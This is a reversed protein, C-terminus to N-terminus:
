IIKYYTGNKSRFFLPNTILRALVDNDVLSFSNANPVSYNGDATKIYQKHM